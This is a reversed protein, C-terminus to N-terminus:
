GALLDRSSDSQTRSCSLAPSSEKPFVSSLISQSDQATKSHTSALESLEARPQTEREEPVKRLTRRKGIMHIRLRGDNNLRIRKKCPGSLAM